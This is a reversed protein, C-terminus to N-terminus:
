YIQLSPPKYSAVKSVSSSSWLDKEVSDWVGKGHEGWTNVWTGGDFKSSNCGGIPPPPAAGTPFGSPM